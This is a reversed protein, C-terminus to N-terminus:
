QITDASTVSITIEADVESHLSVKVKFKGLSKIEEIPQIMSPTIDIKNEEQILKAIETPKVSGYLENNETSLKKVSYEKGNIQESIQTAEKKKENDKKSLDAKIKEVESINEKSAYLEKKNAISPLYIPGLPQVIFEVDNYKAIVKDIFIKKKSTRSSVVKIHKTIM